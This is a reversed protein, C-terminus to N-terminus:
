YALPLGNKLMNICLTIHKSKHDVQQGKHLKHMSGMIDNLM